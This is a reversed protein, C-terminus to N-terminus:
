NCMITETGVATVRRKVLIHASIYDFLRSQFTSTMIEILDSDYSQRRDDNVEM